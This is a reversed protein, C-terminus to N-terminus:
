GTLASYDKENDGKSHVQKKRYEYYVKGYYSRRKKKNSAHGTLVNFNHDVGSAKNLGGSIKNFSADGNGGEFHIKNMGKSFQDMLKKFKNFGRAIKEKRQQRVEPSSRKFFGRLKERITKHDTLICEYQDSLKSQIDWSFKDWQKVTYFMKEARRGNTYCTLCVKQKNKRFYIQGCSRCIM